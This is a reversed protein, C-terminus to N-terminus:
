ATAYTRGDATRMTAMKKHMRKEALAAIGASVILLTTGYLLAQFSRDTDMWLPRLIYFNWVWENAKWDSSSSQISSFFPVPLIAIVVFSAFQLTRASRLGLLFASSMRGFSWFFTWFGLAFVVYCFFAPTVPVTGALKVGGYLCAATGLIILWLYSVAGAPTGDFTKKISAIGNPWFRREADMGFCTLLPVFVFLPAVMACLVMGLAAGSDPGGPGFSTTSLSASTSYGVYTAAAMLYVLGHARLSAVDKSSGFPALIAGAALIFLKSILLAFITVLIWNPIENGMITTFTDASNTVTFPSLCSTFPMERGSRMFSSAVGVSSTVVLYVIAIAYSWVIASVPKPAVTSMLLAASTLMLAHMSLLVYAVLVDSWSSGGLVVCTATVPLALVLLMWTYRYSAIMKGVLFYKPLVPASFVLDLSKRQREMVVTTATLAPAVLVVTSGLIWMIVDYFGRLREQAEVVSVEELGATQAYVFMGVLILLGLYMAFLLVSRGGRLQVRFDRQATANNFYTAFTEHAWAAAKM